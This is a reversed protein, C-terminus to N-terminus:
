SKFFKFAEKSTLFSAIVVKRRRFYLASKKRNWFNSFLLCVFKFLIWPFILSSPNVLSDEPFMGGVYVHSVFKKARMNIMLHVYRLTTKERNGLLLM